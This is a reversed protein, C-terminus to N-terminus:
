KGNALAQWCQFLGRPVHFCGKWKGGKLPLLVEGQRNLYGFWEGYAPDSFRPWAYHHVREFWRWCREDGTHRWGKLLAVLTELHVWWLKQDWELQQPPRGERDLFYFIGGHEADWGYELMKLMRDKATAILAQDGRREGLDMIFWMAEIAHGPNLLRGEFSDSLQGEPTVNELTLGSAEDYFVEMVERICDQITREVLEPPLLHEIELSLNCLIMPLAFNKLPRTGPYAKNYLGKPNSQRELIHHFTRQALEAYEAKGTAIALQGFAMTAFCDSFINYAQVLPRGQRNLSFYWSGAEDQGHQLLFRAGHLAMDLWEQRKELRNYLMSFTWIQRAQLWIFKDTDFVEGDRELCTFYGGQEEDRSHRMWFPVVRELLEERYLKAYADVDPTTSTAPPLPRSAPRSPLEAAYELYRNFLHGAQPYASQPSMFHSFEFTIAKEVGAARAAELKLQLKEWKIPLFKIPMDRDFNEANTWSRIGHKDALKKNIAFYDALEHLEVHGDQFAVIDVVGKIGDFIEDWEREHEQLSIAQARNLTSQSSLIAKTGDIYPSILTPMGGSIGKCHEGLQRYLGVIKGTRRSVEQSLYWGHFAPSHGYRQWAEDIVRLNIDVEKQFDGQEWWYKGSDYLGFYFGMGYKEALELFQQVLDVPPRYCGEAQMLYASPYTLWRKYGSRILIVTDIGMRKMHAFDADWERRSWNQHPIDHSIEDLFTGTILM